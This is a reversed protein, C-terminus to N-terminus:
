TVSPKRITIVNVNQPFRYVDGHRFEQWQPGTPLDAPEGTTSGGAPTFSNGISEHWLYDRVALEDDAAIEELYAFHYVRHPIAQRALADRIDEAGIFLRRGLALESAQVYFSSQDALVVIAVGGPRLLNVLATVATDTVAPPLAYLSHVAWILDYQGALDTPLDQVTVQHTRIPEFLACAMRSAHEVAGPAPDAATYTRAHRDTALDPAAAHLANLWRGTGCGVDLVARRGDPSSTGIRLRAPWDFQAALLAYDSVTDNLPAPVNVVPRQTLDAQLEIISLMEPLAFREEHRTSRRAIEAVLQHRQNDSLTAVDREILFSLLTHGTPSHAVIETVDLETLVTTVTFPEGASTLSDAIAEATLFPTLGTAAMVSPIGDKASHVVILRGDTRLLTRVLRAILAGPDAVYYLVHSLIIVDFGHPDTVEELNDILLTASLNPSVPMTETLKNRFAALSRENVDVGVYHVPRAAHLEYLLPLDVDGDGCGLSLIRLPEAVGTPSVAHDHLRALLADVAASTMTSSARRLAYADHYASTNTTLV